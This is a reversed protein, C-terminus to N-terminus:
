FETFGRVASRRRGLIVSLPLGIALAPGPTGREPITEITRTRTYPDHDFHDANAFRHQDTM